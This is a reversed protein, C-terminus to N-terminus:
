GVLVVRILLAAPLLLNCLAASHEELRVLNDNGTINLAAGVDKGLLAVARGEDDDVVVLPAFNAERLGLIVQLWQPQAFVFRLDAPLVQNELRRLILAFLSHRKRVSGPSVAEHISLVRSHAARYGGLHSLFPAAQQWWDEGAGM